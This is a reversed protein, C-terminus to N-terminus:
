VRVWRGEEFRVKGVDRLKRLIPLILDTYELEAEKALRKSGKPETSCVALLKVAIEKASLQVPEPESRRRPRQHRAVTPALHKCEQCYMEVPRQYVWGQSDKITEWAGVTVLYGVPLKRQCNHCVGQYSPPFQHEQMKRMVEPDVKPKEM